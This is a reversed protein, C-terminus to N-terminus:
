SCFCFCAAWGGAAAEIAFFATWMLHFQDESQISLM